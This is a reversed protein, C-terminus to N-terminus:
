INYIIVSPCSVKLRPPSLRIFDYNRPVFGAFSHKVPRGV